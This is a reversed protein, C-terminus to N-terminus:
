TDSIKLNENFASEVDDIDEWELDPEDEHVAAEMSEAIMHTLYFPRPKGENDDDNEHDNENDDHDLASAYEDDDAGSEPSGTLTVYEEPVLGTRTRQENEAVLWGQGHRYGIFLIDGEHLELENDNEPAFDYLAVAQRNVIQNSPLVISQRKTIADEPEDYGFGADNHNSSDKLGRGDNHSRFSDAPETSANVQEASSGDSSNEREEDDYYEEEYNDGFYGYHLADSKDYAFDKISITGTTEGVDKSGNSAESDREM